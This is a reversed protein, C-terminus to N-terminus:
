TIGGLIWFDFSALALAAIDLLLPLFFFHLLPLTRSLSTLKARKSLAVKSLNLLSTGPKLITVAEMAESRIFTRAERALCARRRNAASPLIVPTTLCEPCPPSVLTASAALYILPVAM